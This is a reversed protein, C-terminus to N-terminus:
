ELFRSVNSLDVIQFPINIKTFDDNMEYKLNKISGEEVLARTADLVAISQEKGPQYITMSMDGSKIAKYASQLGDVGVITFQSPDIDRAKLEDIVGLAMQDNGCIFAEYPQKTKLFTNTLNQALTRNWNAKDDLVYNINFGLDSLTYKAYNSRLIAANSDSRGKILAINASKNSIKKSVYEAQIKGAIGNDSGIFIHKNSELNDDGVSGNVFIIIEDKLIRTILSAISPNTIKVIYADYQKEKARTLQNIQNEFDNGADGITVKFNQNSGYKLFSNALDENFGKGISNMSVYIDLQEKSGSFTSSNECGSLSTILIIVFLLKILRHM